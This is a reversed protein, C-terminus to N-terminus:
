PSGDRVAEEVDLFRGLIDREESYTDMELTREIAKLRKDLGDLREVTGRLAEVRLVEALRTLQKGVDAAVQAPLPERCDLVGRGIEDLTDASLRLVHNTLDQTTETKM